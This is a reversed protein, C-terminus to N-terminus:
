RKRTKCIHWLACQKKQRTQSFTLNWIKVDRKSSFDIKISMARIERLESFYNSFLKSDEASLEKDWAQLMAAWIIKLLFQMRITFPSCLGLPDFVASVLSLVITQTMKMPIEQETERCLILSDTAVNWNLVLTSSSQPDAEFTKVAKTSRDPLQQKVEEDSTIWQTM